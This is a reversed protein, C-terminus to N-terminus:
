IRVRTWFDLLDSLATGIVVAFYQEKRGVASQENAM